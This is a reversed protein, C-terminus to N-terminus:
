AAAIMAMARELPLLDQERLRPPLQEPTRAMELTFPGVATRRIATCHGGTGLALGLDRALSRVYFGKGCHIELEIRPWDYALLRLEHVVVPRPAIEATRGQRALDYARQGAVKVASFAPPRQQITGTLAGLAQEIAQRPPPQAVRVDAREGELDDTTTFASLDITTCYRKSTAMLRDIARTAHGVAVVLVGTARPDLTGAHGVKARPPLRRKLMELATMSSIGFPKDLVLIGNM